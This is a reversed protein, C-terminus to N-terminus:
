VNTIQNQIKEEIIREFGDLDERDVIERPLWVNSHPGQFYLHILKDNKEVRQFDTWFIEAILEGDEIYQIRENDYIYKIAKIGQYRKIFDDVGIKWEKIAQNNKQRQQEARIAYIITFALFFVGYYIWDFHLRMLTISLITLCILVITMNRRGKFQTRYDGYWAEFSDHYVDRIEKEKFTLRLEM